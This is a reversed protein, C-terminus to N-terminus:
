AALAKSELIPEPTPTQLSNELQPHLFSWLKDRKHPAHRFAINSSERLLRTFQLFEERAERETLHKSPICLFGRENLLEEKTEELKQEIAKLENRAVVVQSMWDMANKSNNGFRIEICELLQQIWSENLRLELPDTLFQEDVEKITNQVNPEQSQENAGYPFLIKRLEGFALRQVPDNTLKRMAGLLHYFAEHLSDQKECLERSKENLKAISEVCAYESLSQVLKVRVEKALSFVPELLPHGTFLEKCDNVLYDCYVLMAPTSLESIIM